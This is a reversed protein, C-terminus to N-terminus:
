VEKRATSETAQAKNSRKQQEYCRDSCYLSQRKRKSTDRSSKHKFIRECGSAMCRRWPAADSLTDLLQNAIASTLLGRERLRAPPPTATSGTLERTVLELRMAAYHESVLPLMPNCAALVVASLDPKSGSGGGQLWAQLSRAVDALMELTSRAEALSVSMGTAAGTSGYTLLAGQADPTKAVLGYSEEIIRESCNIAELAKRRSEDDTHSSDAASLERLPSFPLGWKDCFELVADNSSVDLRMVHEFIFENPLSSANLLYDAGCQVIGL